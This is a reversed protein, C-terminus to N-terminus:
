SAESVTRHVIAPRYPDLVTPRYSPTIIYRHRPSALPTEARRGVGGAWVYVPRRRRRHATFSMHSTAMMRSCLRWATPYYQNRRFGRIFTHVRPLNQNYLNRPAVVLGPSLQALYAAWWGFSSPGIVLADCSRLIALDIYPSQATSFHLRHGALSLNQRAHEMDATNTGWSGGATVVFAVSEAGQSQLTNSVERM